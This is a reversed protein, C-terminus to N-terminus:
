FSLEVTAAGGAEVDVSGGKKEGLLGHWIRIEYKGPPVDTIEFEGKDNVVSFYPNKAVFVFAHMFDHADCEVKMGAGKRLKIKKTVKDGFTPQSVNFVTRRAKGILEYTHINHLTHDSNKATLKGGNSMVSLFPHYQCKEQNLEIAALDAPMAKGEKVKHLFVVADQIADGNVRVLPVERTGEGCIQPDKSITFSKTEGKAAGASVKGTIKGGNDVAVEKYKAAHAVGTLGLVAVACILGKALKVMSCGKLQVRKIPNEILSGAGAEPRPTNKNL